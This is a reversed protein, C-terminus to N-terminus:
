KKADELEQKIFELTTPKDAERKANDGSIEYIKIKLERVEREAADMRGLLWRILSLKVGKHKELLGNIVANTTTM